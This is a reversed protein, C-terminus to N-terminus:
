IAGRNQYFGPPNGYAMVPMIVMVLKLMSVTKLLSSLEEEVVVIVMMMEVLKVVMMKM